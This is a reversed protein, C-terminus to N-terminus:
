LTITAYINSLYKFHSVCICRMTEWDRDLQVIDGFSFSDAEGNAIEYENARIVGGTLHRLPTFGHPTDASAM